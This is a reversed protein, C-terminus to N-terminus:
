PLELGGGRRAWAFVLVRTCRGGAVFSRSGHKRHGGQNAHRKPPRSRHGGAHRPGPMKSSRGARRRVPGIEAHKRSSKSCKGVMRRAHRPRRTTGTCQCFAVPSPPIPNQRLGLWGYDGKFGARSLWCSVPMAEDRSGVTAMRSSM